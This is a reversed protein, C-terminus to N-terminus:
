HPLRGTPAYGRPAGAGCASPSLMPLLEAAYSLTDVIDDHSDKEDDGTFRECEGIVDDLPFARNAEPLYVRGSAVLNIGGAARALKDQGMPSLSRVVMAPDTSRRLLQALARQNLVEEVGVFQPRHRRYSRQCLQVQEPIEYKGRECDWWLLNAKPTLLWTSLVFFDAAQSASASPDCTQFIPRERWRFREGDGARYDGTVVFDPDNPLLRYWQFWERKFRGGPVADWNGDEIQKRTLPDVNSLSDRYETIDLSPNDHMSAPVFVANLERTKPEIFRKKVWAHGVHGPNSASRMRLPVNSLTLNRRLRTFLFRYQTETFHTLEDFGIFQFESSAYQYKDNENQLYGFTITAGSPFTWRKDRENWKAGTNALYMKSRDMLAGAKALDAYTRRLLLASYGPVDVFQLAGYWLAQSKGGGGAGGYFVEKTDALLLFTQQKPHPFQGDGAKAGGIWPNRSITRLYLPLARSVWDASHRLSPPSTLPTSPPQSPAPFTM